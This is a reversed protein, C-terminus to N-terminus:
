DGAKSVIDFGSTQELHTIFKQNKRKESLFSYLLGLIAGGYSAYLAASIWSLHDGRLGAWAVLYSAGWLVLVPIALLVGFGYAGRFFDMLAAVAVLGWLVTYVALFIDSDMVEVNSTITAGGLIDSYALVRTVGLTFLSINTIRSGAKSSVRQLRHM